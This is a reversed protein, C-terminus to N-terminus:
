IEEKSLRDYIKQVMIGKFEKGRITTYGEENLMKAIAYYTM